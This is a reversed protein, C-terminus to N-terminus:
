DQVEYIEILAIGTSDDVGSVLATYVGPDLEIYITSDASGGELPFAGVARAITPIESANSADNWDDNSAILTSGEYIGVQPDSLYEIVGQDELGPGVARILLKKPKEGDVVLGGILINAGVGVNVRASVNVLKLDDQTNLKYIEALSIGTGGNTDFAIASYIGPGLNLVNAADLGNEDLPFAGSIAFKQKLKSKNAQDWWDGNQAIVENTTNNVIILNPDELALGELGQNELEPGIARILFEGEGSGSVVFGAILVDQDAGAKARTSLNIVLSDLLGQVAATASFASDANSGAAIIRYTYQDELVAGTDTYSTTGAALSAIETWDDADKNRRQIRYGTENNAIDSWSLQTNGDDETATVNEPSPPAQIALVSTINGAVDYAYNVTTGDHYTAATLRGADDYTYTVAQANHAVICAFTLSFAAKLSRLAKSLPLTAIAEM